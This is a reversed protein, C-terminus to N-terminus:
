PYQKRLQAYLINEKPKISANSEFSVNFVSFFPIVDDMSHASTAPKVKAIHCIVNHKRQLNIDASAVIMLKNASRCTNGTPKPLQLSKKPQKM